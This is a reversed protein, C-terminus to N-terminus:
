LYSGDDVCGSSIRVQLLFMERPMMADEPSHGVGELKIVELFQFACFFFQLNLQEENSWGEDTFGNLAENLGRASFEM